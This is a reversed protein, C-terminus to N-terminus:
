SSIGAQKVFVLLAVVEGIGLCNTEKYAQRKNRPKSNTPDCHEYGVILSYQFIVEFFDCCQLTFSLVLHRIKIEEGHAVRM